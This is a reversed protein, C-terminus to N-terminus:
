HLHLQADPSMFAAEGTLEGYVTCLDEFVRNWAFQSVARERAARGIAEIDRAFLAEVAEAYDAAEARAALQGVTEDVTEAVGGANVGVIPRGCAMAELVILGFPEKDNAHVLEGLLTALGHQSHLDVGAMPEDMVFLDPETCLARAILARQKQGGSLSAFPWHARDQLNVVDLAHDIAAKDAKSLPFFPRHHPIRGSAVIERVTAAAVQISSHQPVYGIREWSHFQRLPTGFLEVTGQQHALLGLVANILTSKGSGNGGLVAVTEGRGVSVSVDRLVPNSGRAVYLNKAQLLQNSAGM